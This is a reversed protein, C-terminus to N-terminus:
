KGFHKLTNLIGSAGRAAEGYGSVTDTMAGVSDSNEQRRVSSELSDNRLEDGRVDEARKRTKWDAASKREELQAHYTARKLEADSMNCTGTSECANFAAKRRSNGSSPGYSTGSFGAMGPAGTTVCGSLYLPGTLLLIITANKVIAHKKV